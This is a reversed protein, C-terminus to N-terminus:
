TYLEGQPPPASGFALRLPVACTDGGEPAGRWRGRLRPLILVNAGTKEGGCEDALLPVAHGQNQDRGEGGNGIGELAV